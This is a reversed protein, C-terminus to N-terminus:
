GTACRLADYEEDSFRVLMTFHHKTVRTVGVVCTHMSEVWAFVGASTETWCGFVQHPRTAKRESQWHPSSLGVCCMLPHPCRIILEESSPLKCRASEEHTKFYALPGLRARGLRQHACPQFRLALPGRHRPPHEVLALNPRSSTLDLM